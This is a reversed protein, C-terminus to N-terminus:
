NLIEISKTVWDSYTGNEYQLRMRVYYTSLARLGAISYTLRKTDMNGTSVNRTITEADKFDSFLSFELEVKTVTLSIDYEVTFGNPSSNYINFYKFEPPIDILFVTDLHGEYKEGIFYIDVSAWGENINNSYEVYYESEDIINDDEDYVTIAPKIEEGTYTYAREKTVAYKPKKIISQNYEGCVNCNGKIIGDEETTAKTIEANQYAHGLASIKKSRKILTSCISCRQQETRGDETCTPEIAIKEVVINHGKAPFDEHYNYNCNECEFYGWGSETCTADDGDIFIISHGTKHLIVTEIYDCNECNYKVYGDELCTVDVKEVEVNSHGTASIIEKEIYDCNRCNYIAYGDELCTADVKEVEIISHGMAPIIEKEIYDCNECKYITYGDTECTPNITEGQVLSHGYAQKTVSKKYNCFICKYNVYGNNECDPEAYDKLICLHWKSFIIYPNDGVKLSFASSPITFVSLFTITALILSLIKRTLKNKM